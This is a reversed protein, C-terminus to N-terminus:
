RDSPLRSMELQLTPRSATTSSSRLMSLAASLRNAKRGHDKCRRLIPTAAIRSPLARIAHLECRSRLRTGSCVSNLKRQNCKAFAKRPGVLATDLRVEGLRNETETKLRTSAPTASAIRSWDSAFLPLYPMRHLEPHEPHGALQWVVGTGTSTTAPNLLKACPVRSSAMM